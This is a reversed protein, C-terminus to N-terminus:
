SFSSKRCEKLHLRLLSLLVKYSPASATARIHNDDTLRVACTLSATLGGLRKCVPLLSTGGEEANLSQPHPIVIGGEPYVKQM